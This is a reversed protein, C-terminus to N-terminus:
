FDIKFGKVDLAALDYNKGTYRNIECCVKQIIKKIICKKVNILELITM